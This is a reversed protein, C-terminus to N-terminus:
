NILTWISNTIILTAILFISGTIYKGRKSLTGSIWAGLLMTFAWTMLAFPISLVRVARNMLELYNIWFGYVGSCIASIAICTWYFKDAKRDIKEKESPHYNKLFWPHKFMRISHRTKSKKFHYGM